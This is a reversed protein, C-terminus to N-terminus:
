EKSPTTYQLIHRNLRKYGAKRYWRALWDIIWQGSPLSVNGTKTTKINADFEAIAEVAAAEMKAKSEENWVM